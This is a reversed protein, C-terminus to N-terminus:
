DPPWWVFRAGGSAALGDGGLLYEVSVGYTTGLSLTEPSKWIQAGKPAEGYTIGPGVPALESFTVGWVVPPPDTPNAPIITVALNTIGCRPAWTFTPLDGYTVSVQIVGDCPSPGTSDRCAVLALAGAAVAVIAHRLRGPLEWGGVPKM